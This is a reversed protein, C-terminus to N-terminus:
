SSATQMGDIQSELVEIAKQLQLTEAEQRDAAVIEVDPELGKGQILRGSPTFWRAFTIYLGGGNNLRRLTNVSGKGFTTGGIITARRHDQLAGVLIESASASFENTLVVMPIDLTGADDRVKWDKRRGTGDIQYLVLGEKLFQSSVDVVSDLVGGPNDRLDLILGEAGEAVAKEMAESLERSTSPYFTTLRIHAFRDGPQSRLLVSTLPIVNRVVTVEMTDSSGLRQILLRVESGRPGRIRGVAELLSLGVISEGNVALIVDGPKLGAIEAPSGELPAVIMLKGNQRLSVSAGIGQFEGRIDQREIAFAEPRVYNTHPDDLAQLMGRIAAEAFVEPDLESRDVHERALLAWVEWVTKLEEPVESPTELPEELPDFEPSLLADVAVSGDSGVDRIKALPEIAEGTCSTLLLISILASLSLSLGTGSRNAM